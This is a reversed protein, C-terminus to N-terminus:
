ATNTALIIGVVKEWQHIVGLLKNVTSPDGLVFLFDLAPLGFVTFGTNGVM